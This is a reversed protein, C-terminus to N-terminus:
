VGLGDVALGIDCRGSAVAAPAQQLGIFFRRAEFRFSPARGSADGLREFLFAASHNVV